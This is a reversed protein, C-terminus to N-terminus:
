KKYKKPVIKSAHGKAKALLREAWAFEVALVFFGAIVLPMTFPGPLVILVLGALVLFSGVSFAIIKRLGKPLLLWNKKM